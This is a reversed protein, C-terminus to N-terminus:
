FESIKYNDFEVDMFDTRIGGYGANRIRAGEKGNDVAQAVLKWKKTNKRNKWYLDIEVDGNKRSQVVARVGLWRGIPILNPHSERDYDDAFIKKEAMTYYKGNVKKKIVAYGDVRLGTYYLNNGDQYRNFLLFGNSENRNESDSLNMKKIRFYVEQSFNKFNKQGVLRFINQPHLGNDTDEPNTATYEKRWRDGESLDGVITKATGGSVVMRGGSNVWWNRSASESRRGTEEFAYQRGFNDVFSKKKNLKSLSATLFNGGGKFAVFALTGSFIILALPM